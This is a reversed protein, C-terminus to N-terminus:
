KYKIGLEKETILKFQWDRDACYEEAMKWKQQNVAWTTVETIYRKTKKTQKKPEKTQDLPKVELMMTRTSGDHTRAKVVVDPFYRHKRGDIPSIYPISLEESSWELINENEDLYKFLKLEWTSRWIINDVNGIYKKPNKPYFKGKYSKPIGMKEIRKVASNSMKEITEKNHKKGFWSPPPNEILRKRVEETMPYSNKNKSGKPRGASFSNGKMKDSLIQKRKIASNSSWQKNASEKCKCSQCIKQYGLRLNLWRTEINCVICKGDSEKKFFTNYYTQSTYNHASVHQALSRITTYKKDCVLCIYISM